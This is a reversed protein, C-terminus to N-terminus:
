RRNVKKDRMCRGLFVGWGGQSFGRWVCDQLLLAHAREVGCNRCSSWAPLWFAASSVTARRVNRPLEQQELTSIFRFRVEDRSVAPIVHSFQSTYSLFPSVHPRIDPIRRFNLKVQASTQPTFNQRDLAVPLLFHLQQRNISPSPLPNHNAQRDCILPNRLHKSPPDSPM